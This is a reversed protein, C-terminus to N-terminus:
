NGNCRGHLRTIKISLKAKNSVKKDCM